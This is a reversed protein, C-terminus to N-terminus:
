CTSCRRWSGSPKSPPTPTASRRWGPPPPPDVRLRLAEKSSFPSYVAGKTLGAETAVADVSAGGFSREAFVRRVADLLAAEVLGNAGARV